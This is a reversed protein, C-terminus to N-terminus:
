DFTELGDVVDVRLDGSDTPKVTYTLRSTLKDSIGKEFPTIEVPKKGDAHGKMVIRPKFDASCTLPKARETVVDLLQGGFQGEDLYNAGFNGAFVRKRVIDGVTQAVQYSSCSVDAGGSAGASHTAVFAGVALLPAISGALFWKHRRIFPHRDLFNILAFERGNMSRGPTTGSPDPTASTGGSEFTTHSEDQPMAAEVRIRGTIPGLSLLDYQKISHIFLEM